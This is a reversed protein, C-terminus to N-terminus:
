SDAWARKRYDNVSELCVHFLLIFFIEFSFDVLIPQLQVAFDLNEDNQITEIEEASASSCSAYSVHVVLFTFTLRCRDFTPVQTLMYVSNCVRKLDVLFVAVQLFLCSLPTTKDM